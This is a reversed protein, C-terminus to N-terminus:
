DELVFFRGDDGRVLDIGAVHIRVGNPPEIGAAERHFHTASTVLRRPVIRDRLVQCPGYVDALFAELARVRQRLGSEIVAWEAADIIRPVLDLPFPREEGSLSFTIGQDRFTRDRTVCRLDFDDASLTQLVGALSEYGVRPVSVREFMEDWGASLRYSDFLDGM